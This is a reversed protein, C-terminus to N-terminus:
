RRESLHGTTGHAPRWRHSEPDRSAAISAPSRRVVRGAFADASAQDTSRPHRTGRRQGSLPEPWRRVLTFRRARGRGGAGKIPKFFLDAAPLATDDDIRGKRAIALTRVVSLGNAHCHAAFAAKDRLRETSDTCGRQRRLMDYIGSKTESRYLYDRARERIEPRYFEFMYYWPPSVGVRCGVALQELWQRVISKGTERRVRSGCRWSYVTAAILLAPLMAGAGAVLIACESGDGDQWCQRAFLRHVTMGASDDEPLLLWLVPAGSLAKVLLNPKLAKALRLLQGQHDTSRM